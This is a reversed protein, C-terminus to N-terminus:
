IFALIEERDPLASDLMFPQILKRPSGYHVCILHSLVFLFDNQRLKPPWIDSILFNALLVTTGRFVKPSVKQGGGVELPELHEQIHRGLELRQRGRWMAKEEERQTTRRQTDRWINTMPILVCGSLGSSRM